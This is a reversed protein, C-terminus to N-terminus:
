RSRRAIRVAATADGGHEGPEALLQSVRGRRDTAVRALEHATLQQLVGSRTTGRARAYGDLRELLEDPFSVMVKAM